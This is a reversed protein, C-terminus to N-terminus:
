DIPLMARLGLVPLVIWGADASPVGPIMPTTRAFNVEGALSFHRWRAAGGILLAVLSGTSEAGALRDEFSQSVLRPGAYLSWRYDVFGRGGPYFEVPIAVDWATMAEDQVDGSVRSSNMYAAHVAVSVRDTLLDGLRMKGRLAVTPEGNHRDGTGTTVERTSQHSSFAIEVRDAVALALGGGVMEAREQEQGWVGDGFSAVLELGQPTAPRAGGVTPLPVALPVRAYTACAGLAPLLAILILCPRRM